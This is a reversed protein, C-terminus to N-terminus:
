LAMGIVAEVQMFPPMLAADPHRARGSRGGTATARTKNIIKM